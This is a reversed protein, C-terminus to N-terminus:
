VALGRDSSDPSIGSSGRLPLEQFCGLYTRDVSELDEVAREREEVVIGDLGNRGIVEEKSYGTIKLAAKNADIIIGSLDTVVVGETMTEFMVRLKGESHRLAEEAMKRETIDVSFGIIGIVNGNEDKIPLKDTKLWRKMGPLELPEEINMKSKGSTIVEMDDKNYRDATDPMLQSMAKHLLKEKPVSALSATAKNMKILKGEKDKYYILAPVSDLILQLEDHQEKLKNEVQKQETVDRMVVIFGSPNESNNRIASVRIEVPIRLGRANVLTFEFRSSGKGGNALVDQFCQKARSREEEAFFKFIEQGVIDGKSYGSVNVMVDNVEVVRYELNAVVIAEYIFQFVASLKEGSGWLSQEGEASEKDRAELLAVRSRLGALEDILQEKTKEFDQM